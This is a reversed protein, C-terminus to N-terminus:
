RDTDVNKFVANIVWKSLPSLQSQSLREVSKYVHSRGIGLEREVSSKNYGKDLLIKVQNDIKDRESHDRKNACYVCGHGDKHSIPRQTFEGHEPCIIIIKIHSKEYVVKSYDYYNGHVKNFEKLVQETSKLRGKSPNKKGKHLVSIKDRTADSVDKKRRGSKSTDDFKEHIIKWKSM